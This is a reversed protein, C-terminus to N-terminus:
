EAPGTEDPNRTFINIRRQTRVRTRLGGVFDNLEVGSRSCFFYAHAAANLLVTNLAVIDTNTPDVTMGDALFIAATPAPLKYRHIAGQADIYTLVAKDEVSGFVAQTGLEGPTPLSFGVGSGQNLQANSVAQLLPYLSQVLTGGNTFTDLSVNFQMHAYYGKADVFNYKAKTILNPM